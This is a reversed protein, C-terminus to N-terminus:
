IFSQTRLLEEIIDIEEQVEEETSIKLLQMIPSPSVPQVGHTM